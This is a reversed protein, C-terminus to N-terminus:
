GTRSTEVLQAARQALEAATEIALKNKIQAIHSEITKVSRCLISAIQRTTRGRGILRFVQLQRDSLSSIPSASEFTRGAIYQQALQRQLSESMYTEGALVHHIAAVVTEGLQQKTVYGLAGAGLAREAYIAEDYVSLVLSPLDPYRTKIEKILDLGDDDGLALDVIVLDPKSGRMADLAAARTGVAGQVALGPQSEILAILGRCLVPHDDVVLLTKPSAGAAQSARSGDIAEPKGGSSPLPFACTVVVGRLPQAAVTLSGGIAHARYGMTHLGIGGQSRYQEPLGTGNDRISLSGAEATCTLRIEIEDARGHTIANHVAEQAIRVLHTTTEQDLEPSYGDEVYGCYADHAHCVTHALTELAGSLAAGNPGIPSLGRALERAEGTAENLLRVIEAASAALDSEAKAALGRALVAALAAIGVLSQCLGDHLEQGLRQRERDAIALVERELAHLREVNSALTAAPDGPVM